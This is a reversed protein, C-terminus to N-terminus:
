RTAAARISNIEPTDPISPGVVVDESMPSWLGTGSSNTARVECTYTYTNDLGDVEIPSDSGSATGTTGGDTSDCEVDYSTIPDGSDDPPMSRVTIKSNGPGVFTPRTPPAPSRSRSFLPNSEGQSPGDGHSNTAFLTCTYTSGNTLGTVNVPLTETTASSPVGGDSSTCDATYSTITDGADNVTDGTNLVLAGQDRRSSSRAASSPRRESSSPPPRRPSTAPAPTMPRPSPAATRTATTSARCSSRLPTPAPAPARPAATARSATPTTSLSEAATRPPRKSPSRSAATTPCSARSPRHTPRSGRAIVVADSDDSAPSTGDGNTATLNCTYTKGLSLGDVVLPLSDSTATGEVGGDSSVCNADYDTIAGGNDYPADLALTISTGDTTADPKAPQEPAATDIVIDDSPDSAASDGITNARSWVTCAYTKTYDLPDSSSRRTSAPTARPHAAM